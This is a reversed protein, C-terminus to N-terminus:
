EVRDRNRNEAVPGLIQRNQSTRYEGAECARLPVVRKSPHGDAGYSHALRGPGDTVPRAPSVNWPQGRTDAAM